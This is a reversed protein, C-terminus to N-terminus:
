RGSGWELNKDAIEMKSWNLNIINEKKGRLFNHIKEDVYINKRTIDPGYIFGTLYFNM